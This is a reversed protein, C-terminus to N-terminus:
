KICIMQLIRSSAVYRPLERVKNGLADVIVKDDYSHGAAYVSGKAAKRFGNLRCVGDQHSEPSFMVEDKTASARVYRPGFLVQPNELKNGVKNICNIASYMKEQDHTQGGVILGNHGVVVKLRSFEEFSSSGRVAREFGLAKCVGQESSSAAFSIRHAYLPAETIEFVEDSAHATFCSGLILLCLSLSKM